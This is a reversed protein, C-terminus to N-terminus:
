SSPNLFTSRRVGLGAIHSEEPHESREVLRWPGFRFIGEHTRFELGSASFRWFIDDSQVDECNPATLNWAEHRPQLADTTFNLRSTASGSMSRISAIDVSISNPHAEGVIRAWTDVACISAPIGSPGILGAAKCGHLAVARRKASRGDGDDMFGCHADPPESFSIGARFSSIRASTCRRGIDLEFDM